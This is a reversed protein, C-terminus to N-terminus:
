LKREMRWVRYSFSECKELFYGYTNRLIFLFGDLIINLNENNVIYKDFFYDIFEAYCVENIRIGMLGLNIPCDRKHDELYDLIFGINHDTQKCCEDLSIYNIDDNLLLDCITSKGILSEGTVVIITKRYEGVLERKGPSMNFKKSSMSTDTM